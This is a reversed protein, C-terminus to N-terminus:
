GTKDVKKNFSWLGQLLEHEKREEPPESGNLVQEYLDPEELDTHHGESDANDDEDEDEDNGDVDADSHDEDEAGELFEAFRDDEEAMKQRKRPSGSGSANTLVTPM